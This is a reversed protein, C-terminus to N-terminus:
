DNNLGRFEKYFQVAQKGVQIIHDAAAKSAAKPDHKELAELIAYHEKNSEIIEGPVSAAVAQIRIFYEDLKEIVLSLQKSDALRMLWAHFRENITLWQERNGERLAIDGAELIKRAKELEIENINDCARLCALGVLASRIESIEDIERESFETVFVGKRPVIQVLGERELKQLAERVPTKSVKLSNALDSESLQKGPPLALSLISSKIAQYALNQLSPTEGIPKLITDLQDFM